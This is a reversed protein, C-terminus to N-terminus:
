ASRGDITVISSLAHRAGGFAAEGAELWLINPDDLPFWAYQRHVFRRSEKKTDEVAEALSCQGRLHRIIQRYGFGSLAPLDASYGLALLHRVEEVLGQAIMEDVRAEIRRYLQSRPLTLGIQLIQYPPPFKHQRASIPDGTAYYVELYRIIRRVNRQDVKSAAVPDVAQLRRYLHENGYTQAEAQLRERLEADPAVEPITWGELVTKLYLGSGGVIFPLKGRSAIERIAGTALAKYQGLTLTEDPSVVDILHHRVRAWQQSNPKATGIDMMRYIQRSDAGIIEGNFQEALRIAFETKGVATPGVVAILRIKDPGPGSSTALWEGSNAHSPMKLLM